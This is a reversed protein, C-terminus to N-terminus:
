FSRSKTVHSRWVGKGIDSFGYKKRENYFRMREKIWEREVRKQENDLRGTMDQFRPVQPTPKKDNM